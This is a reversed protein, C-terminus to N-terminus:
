NRTKDILPTIKIAAVGQILATLSATSSAKCRVYFGGQSARHSPTYLAWPWQQPHGPPSGPNRCVQCMTDPAQPQWQRPHIDHSVQEGEDRTPCSGSQSHHPVPKILLPPDQSSLISASTLAVRHARHHTTSGMAVMRTVLYPIQTGRCVHHMTGIM